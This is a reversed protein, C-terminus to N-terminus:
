IYQSVLEDFRDPANPEVGFIAVNRAWNDLWHQPYRIHARGKPSTNRVFAPGDGRKRYRRLTRESIRLHWEANLRYAAQKPSLQPQAANPATSM